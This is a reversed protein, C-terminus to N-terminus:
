AQAGLAEAPLTPLDSAKAALELFERWKGAVNALARMAAHLAPTTIDPQALDRILLVGDDLAGLGM